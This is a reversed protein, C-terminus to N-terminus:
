TLEKCYQISHTSTNLLRNYLQIKDDSLNYDVIKIFPNSNGNLLNNNHLSTYADNATIEGGSLLKVDNNIFMKFKDIAFAFHTCGLLIYDIDKYEKFFVDLENIFNESDLYNNEVAKVIFDTAEIYIDIYDKLQEVLNQLYESRTTATTAIILLKIKKNSIKLGNAKDFSIYRDSLTINNNFITTFNPFTGIINVDKFKQKFIRIKNTSMTNCAVIIEKSGMNYLRSIVNLGIGELENISKKGYPFNESDAFYVFNEYPMLKICSNLVSIGGIGSDFIGIFNDKKFKM